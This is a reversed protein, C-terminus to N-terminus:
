NLHSNPSLTNWAYINVVPIDEKQASRKIMIYHGEKDHTTNKNRKIMIYHGEKDHTTNKNLTEKTQFSTQQELKRKSEM